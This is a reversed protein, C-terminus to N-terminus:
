ELRKFFFFRDGYSIPKTYENKGLREIPHRLDDPFSYINIMGIKGNQAHLASDTSFTGALEEFSSGRELAAYVTDADSASSCLIEELTYNLPKAFRVVIQMNYWIAAPKDNVMAPLFRWHKMTAASQVNWGTDATGKLIHVDDVTGDELIHLVAEMSIPASNEYDPILPFQDQSILVPMPKQQFEKVASCSFLFAALFLVILNKM